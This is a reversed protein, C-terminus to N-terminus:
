IFFLQIYCLIYLSTRGRDRSQASYSSWSQLAPGPGGAESMVGPRRGLGRPTPLSAIKKLWLFWVYPIYLPRGLIHLPISLRLISKELYKSVLYRKYFIYSIMIPIMCMKLIFQSMKLSYRQDGLSICELEDEMLSIQIPFMSFCQGSYAGFGEAILVLGQM